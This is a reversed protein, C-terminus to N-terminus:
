PSAGKPVRMVRVVRRVHPTYYALLAVCAWQIASMGLALTPEPKIFDILLRFTAYAVMFLRFQDGGTTLRPRLRVMAVALVALFAMEYLQTPHRRIGDGFDVGFPLTTPNGHTNDSLGTLFCGIRGVGIGVALPLAFLDGTSVRVHMRSKVFEVAILAGALGGVVTKGSQFTGAKLHQLWALARAGAIAGAVAAAAVAWRERRNIVDGRRRQYVVISGAVIWALTEFFLHPHIRWAGVHVFVPFSV